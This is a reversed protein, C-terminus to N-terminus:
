ITYFRKSSSITSESGVIQWNFTLKMLKKSKKILKTLGLALVPPGHFFTSGTIVSSVTLGKSIKQLLSSNKHTTTM